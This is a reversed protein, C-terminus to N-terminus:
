IWIINMYELLIIGASNTDTHLVFIAQGHIFVKMDIKIDDFVPLDKMRTPQFKLIPAKAVNCKCRVGSHPLSPLSQHVVIVNTKRSHNSALTIVCIHLLKKIFINVQTYM